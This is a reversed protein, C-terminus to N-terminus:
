TSLVSDNHVETVESMMEKVNGLIQFDHAHPCKLLLFLVEKAFQRLVHVGEDEPSQSAEALAEQKKKLKEDLIDRMEQRASARAAKLQQSLSSQPKTFNATTISRINRSSAMAKTQEQEESQEQEEEENEM